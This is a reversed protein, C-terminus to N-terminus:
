RSTIKLKSYDISAPDVWMKSDLVEEAKRKNDEITSLIKECGAVMIERFEEYSYDHTSAILSHKLYEDPITAIKERIQLFRDHEKIYDEVNNQLKKIDSIRKDISSDFFLKEINKLFVKHEM